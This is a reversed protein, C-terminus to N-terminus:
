ADRGDPNFYYGIGRVTLLHDAYSPDLELKQRIRRVHTNLTRPDRYCRGVWIEDLLDETTRVEGSRLALALLVEYEMKAFHM